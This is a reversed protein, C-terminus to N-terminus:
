GSGESEEIDIGDIRDQDEGDDEGNELRVALLYERLRGLGLVWRVLLAAIHNSETAERFDFRDQMPKPQLATRLRVRAEATDPCTLALHAVTERAYGCSCRPTNIEPVKRDFLFARLGIKGTRIQVLLSSEHKKLGTHKELAKGNFSPRDAPEDDRWSREAISKSHLREWRAKWDRTLAEDTSLTSGTWMRAWQAKTTGSDRHPLLDEVRRRPRGRRPGPRRRLQTAIAACATRILEAKGTRELREEFDALRKNLYLDIPPVYTETELSRVPTARYAGAVVRLCRSQATALDRAIGRPKNERSPTHFAPAGYAILSRIVKTYVERARALSCGWTSAALKTLAFQQTKLKQHVQRLHRRWRLKRDLWIGLFRASEVPAVTAPGLRVPQLDARHARSFHMLESKQPAFEMGRTRAWRECVSWAAELRRCNSTAEKGFVMLNTDDAFGVVLLGAQGALAEYLTAIYLLFLIPSLPSGQPVGATIPIAESAEGDFHLRVTRLDLYSRTWRVVWPPYGKKRLTDLLRIHNVTDFAGKIDLQLLSAVAGYQWATYVADTVMRIALETSREKRNGMQGDPLLRHEEAAEAIRRGIATEIVKGITSLLAIPRWGGPTQQQKITKGPKRLVVVGASRFRRPFYELAFSANALRTLIEALPPGCAKLFGTPLLDDTGPAKWAGTQRLIESIEASDVERKVEFPHTFSEDSWTTDAIDDLDAPPSPFFREALLSSKEAHTTATPEEDESRGLTPLRTPEAPLHSRLRAWRELAWIKKNDQSAAAVTKRWCKTQAFSIARRQQRIAARLIEWNPATRSAHYARQAQRAKHVADATEKNWWPTRQGTNPKRRPVAIDAIRHLQTILMDVAEDMEKPTNIAQPFELRAAETKVLEKDILAWSWGRAELSKGQLTTDTIQVLQALHDSGTYDLAGKYQVRLSHSAWAHDITSDRNGQRLRTPEGWPTALVLQWHAALALLDDAGRSHRGERDWLPHHLNFDGVLLNRGQPNREILTHIPSHWQPGVRIPSYISYITLARDGDGFRVCCWDEGSEQEWAETAHRKHVFLAARGTGYVARYRGRSPCHVTKLDRHVWPEQIAIIDYENKDSLALATM